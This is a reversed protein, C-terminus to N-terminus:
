GQRQQISYRVGFSVMAILIVIALAVVASIDISAFAIVTTGLGTTLLTDQFAGSAARDYWASEVSQEPNKTSGRVTDRDVILAWILGTCAGLMTFAVAIGGVIPHHGVNHTMMFLRALAAALILGAPAAVWLASLRGGGFKVRGWRSRVDRGAPATNDQDERMGDGLLLTHKVKVRLM